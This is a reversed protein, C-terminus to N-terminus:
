FPLNEIDYDTFAINEHGEYPICHAFDAGIGSSIPLVSFANSRRGGDM